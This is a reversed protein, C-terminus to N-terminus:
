SRENLQRNLAANSTPAMRVFRMRAPVAAKAFKKALANLAMRTTSWGVFPTTADVGPADSM